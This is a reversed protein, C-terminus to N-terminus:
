KGDEEERALRALVAEKVKAITDEVEDLMSMIKEDAEDFKAWGAEAEASVESRRKRM